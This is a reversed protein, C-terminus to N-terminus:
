SWAFDILKRLTDKLNQHAQNQVLRFGSLDTDLGHASVWIHYGKPWDDWNESELEIGGLVPKLQTVGGAKQLIASCKLLPIGASLMNKVRWDDYAQNCRIHFWRRHGKDLSWSTPDPFNGTVWRLGRGMMQSVGLLGPATVDHDLFLCIGETEVLMPDFILINGPFDLLVHGSMHLRNLARNVWYVPVCARCRSKLLPFLPSAWPPTPPMARVGPSAFPWFKKAPKTQITPSTVRICGPDLEVALGQGLAVNVGVALHHAPHNQGPSKLLFGMLDGLSEAPWPQATHHLEMQDPRPFQIHVKNTEGLILAQVLKLLYYDPRPLQFLGMKRAMQAPELTIQGSSDLSVDQQLRAVWDDESM